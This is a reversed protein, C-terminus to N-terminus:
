RQHVPTATCYPKSFPLRPYLYTHFCSHVKVPSLNFIASPKLWCTESEIQKLLMTGDCYPTIVGGYVGFLQVFDCIFNQLCVWFVSVADWGVHSALQSVLGSVLSLCFWPPPCPMGTLTPSLVPFLLFCLGPLRVCCGLWPLRM